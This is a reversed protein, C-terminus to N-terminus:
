KKRTGPQIALVPKRSFVLKKKSLQPSTPNGEQMVDTKKSISVNVAKKNLKMTPTKEVQASIMNGFLLVMVSLFLIRKM